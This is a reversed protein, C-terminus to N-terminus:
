REGDESGGRDKIRYREYQEDKDLNKCDFRYWINCFLRNQKM